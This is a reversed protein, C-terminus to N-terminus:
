GVGDGLDGPQRLGGHDPHHRHQFHLTEDRRMAPARAAAVGGMITEIGCACDTRGRVQITITFCSSSLGLIYGRTLYSSALARSSRASERISRRLRQLIYCRYCVCWRRGDVGGGTVSCNRKWCSVGLGRAQLRERYLQFFILILWGLTGQLNSRESPILTVTVGAVARRCIPRMRRMEIKVIAVGLRM